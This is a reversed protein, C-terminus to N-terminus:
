YYFQQRQTLIRSFCAITDEYTKMIETIDGNNKGYTTMKDYYGAMEWSEHDITAITTEAFNNEKKDIIFFKVMAFRRKFDTDGIKKYWLTTKYENKPQIVQDFIISRLSLLFGTKENNNSISWDKTLQNFRETIGSNFMKALREGIDKIDDSLTPEGGIKEM